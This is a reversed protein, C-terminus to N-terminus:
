ARHRAGPPRWGPEGADGDALRNSSGSPRRRDDTQPVGAVRCLRLLMWSRRMSVGLPPWTRRPSTASRAPGGWGSRCGARRRRATGRRSRRRARAAAEAVHRALDLVGDAGDGERELVVSSTRPRDRAAAPSGAACPPTRRDGGGDGQEEQQLGGEAAPPQRRQQEQQQRHRRAPPRSTAASRSSPMDSAASIPSTATSAIATRPPTTCIRCSGAARVRPRRAPVRGPGARARSRLPGTSTPRAPSPPRSAAARPARRRRRAELDSWGSAATTRPPRTVM